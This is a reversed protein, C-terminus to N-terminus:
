KEGETSKKDNRVVSEEVVASVEPAQIKEACSKHRGIAAMFHGIVCVLNLFV